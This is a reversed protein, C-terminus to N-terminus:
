LIDMPDIDIYWGSQPQIHKLVRTPDTSRILIQWRYHRDIRSFFCPAPGIMHTDTLGHKQILHAIQEAAGEIQRQAEIPHTNQVLVRGLRRVPPYALERRAEIELAYFREYDHDSAMVISPHEPQYTQIIVQGGLIGRGARGAVQTLLQFARERARFDPLALGPDASVVGVLTVLPLDLGKAIMQTGVLIDAEGNAFKGLIAEHMDPKDATDRDWRLLRADPFEKRISEEVQQTGAGFFRIRDSSCEPCIDPAVQQNGCHHCRMKEGHRHYTMPTDCRDCGVVYGCDRCFVYSAQGRRNLFLIAQEKRELVGSLAHKLDASFMSRNGKKLEDRMDVITVPPLGITMADGEIAEYALDVGRQKAQKEVRQRHGMIRSPLHLYQLDGKEARYYSELDPTASGLILTAENLDALKEAVDRSQYYPPLIPPAQKYSSDHEEDLIILGVDPLPTFLASRTGVIVQIHGERARRWTDYREGHSLSGHVVAVQDPFRQAVRRITQPTLAIEPVLFIAQRGQALTEAIAHLYIETKGSGTVGHLLFGRRRASKLPPNQVGEEFDPLTPTPNQLYDSIAELVSNLRMFVDENTFRLVTLGLHELYATRMEDYEVQQNHSEGDIEIVLKASSVYFDVIFPGIPNQRRFKVNLKKNKVSQWLREEAPTQNKRMHRAVLKLKRYQQSNSKWQRFEEDFGRRRQRAVEGSKLPPNQVGEEFDTPTPNNAGEFDNRTMSDRIIQWVADQEPTLNLAKSPIYDRDELSDRFVIREGLQVFGKRQLTNLDASSAGTKEYVETVDLPYDFRSIYDFIATQKPARKLKSLASLVEDEPVICEATRITKTTVTPASLVTESYVYDLDELDRIVREVTKIGSAKRLSKIGLPSKERLADLIKEQTDTNGQANEDILHVRKKSKGTIGPPLMLWLCAGPSTLYTRSMWLALEIHEDTMVPEPHLLQSIPKITIDQLDDPLSDHLEIVIGAQMAVGFSVRVLSGWTIRGQLREPILYHFTQNVASNVAVEAYTM